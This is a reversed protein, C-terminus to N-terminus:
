LENNKREKYIAERLIINVQDNITIDNEHALKALMLFHEDSIDIIVDVRKNFGSEIGQSM